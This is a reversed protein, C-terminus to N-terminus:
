VIQCRGERPSNPSDMADIPEVVLPSKIIPLSPYANTGPSSSARSSSIQSIDFLLNIRLNSILELSTTEVFESLPIM